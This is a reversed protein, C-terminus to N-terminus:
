LLSSGTSLSPSWCDERWMALDTTRMLSKQSTPKSSKERTIWSNWRWSARRSPFEVSFQWAEQMRFWISNLGQFPSQFVPCFTLTYFVFSGTYQELRCMSQCHHLNQWSWVLSTTVYRRLQVVSATKTWNLAYMKVRCRIQKRPQLIDLKTFFLLKNHRWIFPWPIGCSWQPPQKCYLQIISFM